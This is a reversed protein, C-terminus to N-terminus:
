VGASSGARQWQGGLDLDVYSSEVQIAGDGGGFAIRKGHIMRHMTRLEEESSLQVVVKKLWRGEHDEMSKWEGFDLGGNTQQTKVIPIKTDVAIKTMFSSVWSDVPGTTGINVAITAQLTMPQGKSPSVSSFGGRLRSATVQAQTADIQAFTIGNFTSPRRRLRDVSQMPNNRWQQTIREKWIVDSANSSIIARTPSLIICGGILDLHTTIAHMGTSEVILAMPDKMLDMFGVVANFPRLQKDIWRSIGEKMLAGLQTADFHIHISSWKDGKDSGKSSIPTDVALLHPILMEKLLYFVKWQADTPIDVFARTTNCNIFYDKAWQTMLPPQMPVVDDLTFLALTRQSHVPGQRGQLIMPTPPAWYERKKIIDNWKRNSLPHTFCDEVEQPTSCGVLPHM